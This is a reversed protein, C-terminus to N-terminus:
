DAAGTATSKFKEYFITNLFVLSIGYGFDEIPITGLRFGVQYAEGYLVVPRWTLYGNFILIVGILVALYVFFKTRWLLRTKLVRDVIIAGGLFILMLGTYEKGNVFFLLGFLQLSYLAYRLRKPMSLKRDRRYYFGIVEWIFLAAFPVTFFFLWEEIPLGALRFDLTYKENFWWHAGTVLSDWILYPIAVIIIAPWAYRWKDVFHIQREFSMLLPGAFIILNLLLYEAKV